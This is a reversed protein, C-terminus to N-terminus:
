PFAVGAEGIHNFDHSEESSVFEIFWSDNPAVKKHPLRLGLPRNSASKRSFSDSSARMWSSDLRSACDTSKTGCMPFGVPMNPMSSNGWRALSSWGQSAHQKAGRREDMLLVDAKIQHALGTAETEGPDFAFPLVLVSPTSTIQLWGDELALAIRQRRDPHSLAALEKAVAPPVQVVGYRCQLFDLRGVIALNSLPSTNSVVRMPPDEQAETLGYQRPIGREALAVGFAFCDLKAMRAAQGLTLWSNAYYRCALEIQMHREREGPGLPLCSLTQEDLELTVSM